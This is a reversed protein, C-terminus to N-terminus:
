GHRDRSAADTPNETSEVHVLTMQFNHSLIWASVKQLVHRLAGSSTRGKSVISMCVYSDTLHSFRM